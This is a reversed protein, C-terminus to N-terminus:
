PSVEDFRRTRSLAPPFALVFRTNLYTTDLYLRGGNRHVLDTAISLGVGTGKGNEKTTFFPQLIKDQIDVPVGKGSDTVMIVLGDRSNQTSIEIWPSKSGVVADFANVLLNLLAQAVETANCRLLLSDLEPKVRVTVGNATFREECMDLAERIVLQIPVFSVEDNAANRSIRLLSHTIKSIRGITEDTGSCHEELVRRDKDSIEITRLIFVLNEIKLKLIALPNNVQHAIGAALEGLARMKASHISISRQTELEGAIRKRTEIEESLAANATELDESRHQLQEHLVNIKFALAFSLFAEEFVAGFHVAHTTLLNSEIVGSLQLVFIITGALFGFYGIIFFLALPTKRLCLFGTALCLLGILGAAMQGLMAFIPRDGFLGAIPIMATLIAVFQLVKDMRPANTATSLLRRVLLTLLVYTAGGFLHLIREKVALHMSPWVLNLHGEVIFFMTGLCFAFLSFLLFSTDRTFFYVLLNYFPMLFLIGYVIGFVTATTQMERYLTAESAVTLSFALPSFSQVRLYHFSGGATDSAPFVLKPDGFKNRHPNKELFGSRFEAMKGDSTPAYFHVHHLLASGVRLFLPSREPERNDIKIRLWFASPSTGFDVTSPPIEQWDTNAVVDATTLKGSSDELFEIREIRSPTDYNYSRARTSCALALLSVLIFAAIPRIHPTSHWNLISEVIPKSM